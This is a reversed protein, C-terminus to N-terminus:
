VGVAQVTFTESITRGSKTVSLTYVYTGESPTIVVPIGYSLVGNFNLGAIAATGNFKASITVSSGETVTVTNTATGNLLIEIITPVGDLSEGVNPTVTSPLDNLFKM